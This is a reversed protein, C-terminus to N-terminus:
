AAASVPAAVGARERAMHAAGVPLMVVPPPIEPEVM